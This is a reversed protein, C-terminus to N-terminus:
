LGGLFGTNRIRIRPDPAKKVKSGPYSFNPDPIFMWSQKDSLKRVNKKSLNM